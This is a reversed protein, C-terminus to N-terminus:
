PLDVEREKQMNIPENEMPVCNRFPLVKNLPTGITQNFRITIETRGSVTGKKRVMFLSRMM